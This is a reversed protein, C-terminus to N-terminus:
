GYSRDRALPTDAARELPVFLRCHPCKYGRHRVSPRPLPTPTFVKRCHPCTVALESTSGTDATM